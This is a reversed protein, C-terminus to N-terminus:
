YREEDNIDNIIDHAMKTIYYLDADKIIQTDIDLLHAIDYYNTMNEVDEPEWGYIEMTKQIKDFNMIIYQDLNGLDSDLEVSEKLRRKDSIAKDIESNNMGLKNGHLKVRQRLVEVADPDYPKANLAKNLRQLYDAYKDNDTSEKLRRKSKRTENLKKVIVREVIREILTKM